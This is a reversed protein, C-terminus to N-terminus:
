AEGPPDPLNCITLSPNYPGVGVAVVYCWARVEANDNAATGGALLAATLATMGLTVATARRLLITTDM